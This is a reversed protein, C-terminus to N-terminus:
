NSLFFFLSVTLPECPLLYIHQLSFRREPIYICLFFYANFFAALYSQNLIGLSKMMEQNIRVNSLREREFDCLFDEPGCSRPDEGSSASMALNEGVPM